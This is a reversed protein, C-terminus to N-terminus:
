IDGSCTRAFSSSGACRGTRTQPLATRSPSPHRGNWPSLEPDDELRNQVPGGATPQIVIHRGFQFVDDDLRQLFVAIQAILVGGVHAGVQLPQLPVGFRSVIWPPSMCPQFPPM